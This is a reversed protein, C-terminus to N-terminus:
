VNFLKVKYNIYVLFINKSLLSIPLIFFHLLITKKYMDIRVPLPCKSQVRKSTEPEELQQQNVALLETSSIQGDQMLENHNVNVAVNESPEAQQLIPLSDIPKFETPMHCEEIQMEKNLDIGSENIHQVNETANLSDKDNIAASKALEIDVNHTEVTIVNTPSSIIPIKFNVDELCENRYSFFSNM